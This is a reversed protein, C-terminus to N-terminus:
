LVTLGTALLEDGSREATTSYAVTVGAPSDILVTSTDDISSDSPRYKKVELEVPGLWVLDPDDFEPDATVTPTRFRAWYTVEITRTRPPDAEPLELMQTIAWASTTSFIELKRNLRAALNIDTEFDGSVNDFVEVQIFIYVNYPRRKLRLSVGGDADELAAEAGDVDLRFGLGAVVGKLAAAFATKTCVRGRGPIKQLMEKAKLELATQSTRDEGPPAFTVSEGTAKEAGEVQLRPTAAEQLQVLMKALGSRTLIRGGGPAPFRPRPVAPTEAASM